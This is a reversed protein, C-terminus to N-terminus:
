RNRGQRVFLDVAIWVYFNIQDNPALECEFGLDPTVKPNKNNPDLELSVMRTRIIIIISM